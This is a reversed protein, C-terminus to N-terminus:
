EEEEGVIWMPHVPGHWWDELLEEETWWRIEPDEFGPDLIGYRFSEDYGVVVIVHGWTKDEGLAKLGGISIVVVHVQALANRLERTSGSMDRRFPVGLEEFAQDIGWHTAGGDPFRGFFHSDILPTIGPGEEHEPAAFWTPLPSSRDLWINYATAVSYDGCHPTDRQFQHYSALAEISQASPYSVQLPDAHFVPSSNYTQPGTTGTHQIANQQYEAPEIQHGTPDIYRLPNNLAYSYRNLEQPNGPEPVVTDASIFRGLAPHYYRAHMFVLGAGPVDRQGTFGFDTPLTGESWRVEGYPHYLQRAVVEGAQPGSGYTTLSTSGLHDGHLYYVVSGSATSRRMAVRRGGHYYYKTVRPIGAQAEATAQNGTYDVATLRFTHLYGPIA